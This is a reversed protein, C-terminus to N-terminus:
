AGPPGHLTRVFQGAGEPDECLTMLVRYAVVESQEVPMGAAQMEKTLTEAAKRLPLYPNAPAESEKPKAKLAARVEVADKAAGTLGGLVSAGAALAALVIPASHALAGFLAPLVAVSDVAGFGGHVGGSRRLLEDRQAGGATFARAMAPALDVEDPAACHALRVSWERVTDM